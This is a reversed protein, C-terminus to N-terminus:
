ASEACYVELWQEFYREETGSLFPLTHGPEIVGFREPKPTLRANAIM